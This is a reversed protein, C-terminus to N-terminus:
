VQAAPARLPTSAALCSVLPHFPVLPISQWEM